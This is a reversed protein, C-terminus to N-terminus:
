SKIKAKSGDKFTPLPNTVVLDGEKLGELVEADLDSVGGTKVKQNHLTNDKKDFIFVSKNGDKDETIMEFNVVLADKVNKTVIDCKVNVGPSLRQGNDVVPDVSIIAEFVTEDGTSTKNITAIPSVKDVKGKLEVDKGLADAKIIVEQAPRIDKYNSEKIKTKIQLKDPNVVEYALQGNNILAGNTANIQSIVGDTPSLSKELTRQLKEELQSIKLQTNEINNKQSQIDFGTSTNLKNSDEMVKSYNLQSSRVANESDQLAKKLPELETKSIEMNTYQEYAKSYNDKSYKYNSEADKLNNEAVKLALINQSSNGSAIVKEYDLRANRLSIQSQQIQMNLETTDIELIKQGKTVRQFQDVLVKKIIFSDDLFVKESYTQEVVGTTFVLTRFESKKIESVSVELANGGGFSGKFINAVIIGAITLVVLTGIIIKKKLNFV